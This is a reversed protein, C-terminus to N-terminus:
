EDESGGAPEAAAEHEEGDEDAAGGDGPVRAWSQSRGLARFGIYGRVRLSDEAELRFAARYTRGSSPDYITGGSWGGGDHTFDKMFVLGIIPRDRLAPDPNDRDRRPQGAEPDGEEYLPERLWALRGHWKGEAEYIEVHSEGGATLWFGAAAGPDANLDAAAPNGSLLWIALAVTIACRRM